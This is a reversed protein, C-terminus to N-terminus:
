NFFVCVYICVTHFWKVLFGAIWFLIELLSVETKKEKKGTFHAMCNWNPMVCTYCLEIGFDLFSLM